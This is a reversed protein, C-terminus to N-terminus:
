VVLGPGEGSIQAACKAMFREVTPKGEPFLERQRQQAAPDASAWAADIATQMDRRVEAESKGSLEAVRCIAAKAKIIEGFKMSRVEPQMM